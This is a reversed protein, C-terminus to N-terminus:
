SRCSEVFRKPLKPNSAFHVHVYSALLSKDAIGDQFKTGSLNVQYTKNLRKREKLVSNHFVHGPFRTGAPGFLNHGTNTVQVYGIALKQQMVAKAKVVGAMPMEQREFDVISEALCMLGGCEAYIPIQRDHFRKLDSLFKRNRSLETAYLEPFGGGMYIGQANPPISEGDAPKFFVLDAGFSELLTLNDEYYFNLSKDRPIAIPVRARIKRNAFLKLESHLNLNKSQKQGIILLRKWDISAAIQNRLRKLYANSISNEAAPILGLHREPINLAADFPICGLVPIRTAKEIATTLWQQHLKGGTRNLIVGAIKLDRDFHDFGLAIAAASRSIASADIILIVPLGLLKAISATSGKETIGDAGDFLGMVGEVVSIGSGESAHIYIETIAKESLLWSDLNRSARGAVFTHLSPDIFDPGVKFPQPQLGKERLVALLGVTISTKGVGSQTGAIVFGAM